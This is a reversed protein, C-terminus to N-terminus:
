VSRSEMAPCKKHSYSTHLHNYYFELSQVNNNEFSCFHQKFASKGTLPQYITFYHQKIIKQRKINARIVKSRIHCRVVLLMQRLREQPHITGTPKPMWGHRVYGDETTLNGSKASNPLQFNFNPQDTIRGPQGQYNLFNCKPLVAGYGSCFPKSNKKQIFLRLLTIHITVITQHM